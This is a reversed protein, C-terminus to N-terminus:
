VPLETSSPFGHMERGLDGDYKKTTKFLEMHGDSADFRCADRIAQMESPSFPQFGRAVEINQHLVSLSDIGSITVSVPLSMAYRLGMTVVVVGERVLEGSGGLSKMGLAAIGRRNVEPLVNAEFSRFTADLCNLPMQVTDFPFNHSLMKLHISPDKHGTFGLFRVKGQQKAELLAEAAGNPAFILDPDNEYIVEHIQWVDVHDTQLRTLSEELQRMAVDKARGHTCVKTMVVARDRKGRLARGLREESLGQHYEWANDFFNVGADLAESVIQTAEADSDASGLHYGGIGLASVELGTRGLPRKPIEAATQGQAAFGAAGLM